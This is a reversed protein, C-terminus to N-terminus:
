ASLLSSHVAHLFAIKAAPCTTNKADDQDQENDNEKDCM